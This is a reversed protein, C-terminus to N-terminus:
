RAKCDVVIIDQKAGVGPPSKAVRQHPASGCQYHVAFDKECRPAPDGIVNVDISFHCAELKNCAKAVIDTMNGVGANCNAGYTAQRVQVTVPDEALVWWTGFGLLSGVILVSIRQSIRIM